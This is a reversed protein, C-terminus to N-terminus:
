VETKEKEIRTHLKAMNDAFEKELDIGLEDALVMICWLCDSLEHALMEDINEPGPRLKQKVMILKSLDGVDTVFGAMHENVGWAQHSATQKKELEGYHDRVALAQQNLDSFTHNM